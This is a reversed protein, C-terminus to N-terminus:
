TELPAKGHLAIVASSVPSLACLADWDPLLARGRGSQTVLGRTKLRSMIRSLTDANLALYDAIDTRSLPIDFILGNACPAGIRLGLEILFSAVREEGSLGGITAIHLIARAHQDALQRNLHLGLAADSGLLVEFTSAPLRWVESAAAASLSVAPLPPAFAARFIDGPYHLTLLQRHKGPATAQLVLLGARVIYVAESKGSTLALEQRRRARVTTARQRLAVLPEPEPSPPALKVLRPPSRRPARHTIVNARIEARANLFCAKPGQPTETKKGQDM